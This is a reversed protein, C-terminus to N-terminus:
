NGSSQMIDSSTTTMAPTARPCCTLMSRFAARFKESLINYVIPNVAANLVLLLKMVSGNTTPKNEYSDSFLHTIFYIHFPFFCVFFIILVAIVMKTTRRRNRESVRSVTGKGGAGEPQETLRRDPHWLKWAIRTYMIVLSVFPVVHFGLFIMVYYIRFKDVDIDLDIFTIDQLTVQGNEKVYHRTVITTIGIFFPLAFVTSCTWIVVLPWITPRSKNRTRAKLPHVIAFYRHFYIHRKEFLGIEFLIFLLM